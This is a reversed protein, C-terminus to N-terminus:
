GERREGYSCFHMPQVYNVVEDSTGYYECEYREYNPRSVHFCHKCDKCRVLEDIAAIKGDVYGKDYQDRDYRLARILEDKDVTIGYKQAMNMIDNELQYEIGTQFMEIPSKYM